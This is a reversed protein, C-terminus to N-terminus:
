PIEYVEILAIGPAGTLHVTYVGPTLTTLVAADLSNANLPFAGAKSAAASIADTTAANASSWNDNEALVRGASDYIVLKPDSIAGSVGHNALTPGVGRILLQRAGRGIIFGAILTDAGVGTRGRLSSNLMGGGTVPLLTSRVIQAAIAYATANGLTCATRFHFGINIRAEIVADTLASLRAFTPPPAAPAGSKSTTLTIATNDGLIERATAFMANILLAHGSLYEPHAPTTGLPVWTPDAVTAANGDVDAFPIAQFPRWLSYKYKLQFCVIAADAGAINILAFTRANDVLTASAPLANRIQANSDAPDCIHIYLALDTQAPTRVSSVAGGKAKVENLDTAYAATAMAANRDAFGYPPGPDFSALNTLAFPTTGSMALGGTPGTANSSHRWFGPATSGTYTPPTSFGDTARWALIEKAVTEGWTRGLTIATAAAGTSAIKSLSAALQTELAALKAPFLNALTTYAAQAAAAEASAGLPASTTVRLPTYKNAIGNVADFIAVHVIAAARLQTDASPVPNRMSAELTANWDTVIDASARSLAFGLCLAAALFRTRTSRLLRSHM